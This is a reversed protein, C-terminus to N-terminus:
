TWEVHVSLLTSVCGFADLGEITSVGVLFEVKFPILNIYKVSNQLPWLKSLEEFNCLTM